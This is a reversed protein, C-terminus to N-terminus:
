RGSGDPVGETAQFVDAHDFGPKREVVGAFAHIREGDLSDRSKRETNSALWRIDDGRTDSDTMKWPFDPFHVVNTETNLVRQLPKRDRFNTM